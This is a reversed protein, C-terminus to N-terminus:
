RVKWGFLVIGLLGLLGLVILWSAPIEAPRKRERGELFEVMETIPVRISKLGKFMGDKYVDLNPNDSEVAFQVVPVMKPNREQLKPGYDLLTVMRLKMTPQKM